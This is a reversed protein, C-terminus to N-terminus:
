GQPPKPSGDEPNPPTAPPEPAVPPTTPPQPAVPPATPPQYQPPQQGAPPATPPQYQPPQQAGPGGTYSGGAPPQGQQQAPPFFPGNSLALDPQDKGYGLMLAWVPSLLAGLVTYGGVPKRFAKNINIIAFIEVIIVVIGFLGGIWPIITGIVFLAYWAPQRGVDLMVWINYVPVWAAWPQPHNYKKLMKSFGLAFLVYVAAAVVLYILSVFLIVALSAGSVDSGDYYDM